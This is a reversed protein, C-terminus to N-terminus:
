RVPKWIRKTSGILAGIGAGLATYAPVFSAVEAETVYEPGVQLVLWLGFAGVAVGVIGGIVAGRKARSGVLIDVGAIESAPFASRMTLGPCYVSPYPCAVVSDAGPGFPTLLRGQYTRGSSLHLRVVTASDLSQGLRVQAELRDVTSRGVALSLILFGARM